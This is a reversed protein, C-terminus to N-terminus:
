RSRLQKTQSHALRCDEYVAKFCLEAQYLFRMYMPDAVDEALLYFKWGYNSVSRFPLVVFKGPPLGVGWTSVAVADPAKDLLGSKRLAEGQETWQLELQQLQRDAYRAAEGDKRCEM